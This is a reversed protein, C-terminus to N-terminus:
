LGNNSFANQEIKQENKMRNLLIEINHKMANVMVKLESVSEKLESVSEALDPEDETQECHDSCYFINYGKRDLKFYREGCKTCTGINAVSM